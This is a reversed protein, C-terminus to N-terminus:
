TERAWAGELQMRPRGEFLPQVTTKTARFVEVDVRGGVRTYHIGHRDLVAAIQPAYGGDIVYGAKPVRVSIKPVLEARLPVRGVQPKSEDDETWTAGSIDSPRQEYAYGRFALETTHPGNEWVLPLETGGLALDATRARDTAAQWAPVDTAAREFLARL